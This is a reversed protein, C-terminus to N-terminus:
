QPLAAAFTPFRALTETGLNAAIKAADALQQQLVPAVDAALKKYEPDTGAQRYSEHLQVMDELAKLQITLFVRDFQGAPAARLQTLMAEQKEDRPADQLLQAAIRRHEKGLREAFARVAASSAKETAIRSSDVTFGAAMGASRAYVQASPATAPKPPPPTQGKAGPAILLPAAALLLALRPVILLWRPM